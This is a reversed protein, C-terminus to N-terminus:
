ITNFTNCNSLDLFANSKQCKWYTYSLYFFSYLGIKLFHLRLLKSDNLAGYSGLSMKLTKTSWKTCGGSGGVVVVLGSRGCGVSGLCASCSARFSFRDGGDGGIFLQM